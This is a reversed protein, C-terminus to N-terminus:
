EDSALGAPWFLQDCFQPFHSFAHLWQNTGAFVPAVSRLAAMTLPTGFPRYEPHIDDNGLHCPKDLLVVRQRITPCTNICNSTERHRQPAQSATGPPSNAPKAKKAM